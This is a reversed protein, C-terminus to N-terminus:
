PKKPSPTSTTPKSAAAKTGVKITEDVPTYNSTFTDTRVVTGNKKVTRTVIAKGGVMGKATVDTTGATMTPDSVKVTKFPVNGTFPVTKWAVDYKPSTGYLSVTISDSTYSVSVLVWHDTTNKWRLDPGGWSVTADRGMPYHSIYFSHNIREPVPFGSLFVANFMTTAVQCIGGGLQPVLKGKVIAFAEQYGKSATREGVAGNFSFTGGPPILKGDLASGLVHINNIRQAISGGYTTTFTSIREKVGMTEAQATTVAPPTIKTRLEVSRSSDASQLSATLSAAFDAVDAGTGDKGPVVKVKGGKTSFHANVPPNGLAAGIKPVITKSAEKAGIATVLKWANPTGSAEVQTFTLMKAIDAVSLNWSKTGYTVTAPGGLMTEAVAQAQKAAADNIKPQATGVKVVVTRNDGAFAGLIGVELAQRDV